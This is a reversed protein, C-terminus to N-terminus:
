PVCTQVYMSIHNQITSQWIILVELTRPKIIKQM